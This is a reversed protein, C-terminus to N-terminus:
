KEADDKRFGLYILQKLTYIKHFIQHDDPSSLFYLCDFASLVKCKISGSILIDNKKIIKDHLESHMPRFNNQNEALRLLNCPLEINCPDERDTVHVGERNFKSVTTSSLCIGYYFSGKWSYILIPDGDNDIYVKGAEIIM